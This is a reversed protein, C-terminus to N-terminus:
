PRLGDAGRQRSAGDDRGDCRASRARDAGAEDARASRDGRRQLLCDVVDRAQVVGVLRDVSNGEAIPIRNHPAELLCARVTAQDADADIWAVETRPTMVERTPRDALRVVSSILHRESEELVGATAAEAVVLHLDEATVQDESERNLRILRFILASSRDLLWGIPATAAVAVADADRRRDRDRRALAARIAQAGARRHDALCLHHPHHRARLRASRATEPDIGLLALRQGVPAGLSAGSYAGAIIGILTIGIQVTSLFRGPDSALALARARAPAAAQGARAAARPAVLRGGAGVDRVPREAGGSRPHHRRRALSLTRPTPPPMASSKARAAETRARCHNGQSRTLRAPRPLLRAAAGGGRKRRHGAYVEPAHHCTPQGFLRPGSVVAGGKPDPAGFYLRRIRALAMAGACM